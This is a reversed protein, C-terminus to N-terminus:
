RTQYRPDGRWLGRIMEWHFALYSRGVVKVDLERHLARLNHFPVGPFLHHEAHYNMNWNLWRLVPNALTTRTNELINAGHPLGQHEALAYYWYFPATAAMPALWYIVAFWSEFYVSLAAVLAYGLLNIRAERVIAPHASDPVYSDRYGLAVRVISKSKRWWYGQGGLWWLYSWLTWPKTGILESDLGPQKTYRHHTFHQYREHDVPWIRLFGTLRAALDNLRRTRFPTRHLLEHQGSYTFGWLIVGHMLFLPVAWWSGWTLHLGYGILCLAVLQSGYQLAGYLNSRRSLTRLRKRDILDRRYVWDDM